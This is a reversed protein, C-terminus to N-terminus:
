QVVAQLGDDTYYGGNSFLLDATQSRNLGDNFIIYAPRHGVHRQVDM